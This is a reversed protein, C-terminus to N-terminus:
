YEEDSIVRFTNSIRNCKYITKRILRGTPDYTYAPGDPAGFIYNEEVKLTGDPYYTRSNGEQCSNITTYERYEKNVYYDIQPGTRCGKVWTHDFQLKGNEYFTRCRGHKRGNMYVDANILVGNQNYELKEGDISGNIRHEKMEVAGNPHYRIYTSMRNGNKVSHHNRKYIREGDEFYELEEGELRGNNYYKIGRLVSNADFDQSPGHLIGNVYFERCRLIGERYLKFEGHKIDNVVYYEETSFDNTNILLGTYTAMCHKEIPMM